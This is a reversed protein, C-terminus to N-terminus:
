KVFEAELYMILYKAYGTVFELGEFEFQEQEDTVANAYANKLRDLKPRDWEVQHISM